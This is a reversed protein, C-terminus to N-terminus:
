VDRIAERIEDVTLFRENADSRYLFGEPLAEGKWGISSWSQHSPKVVYIGRDKVTRRIEEQNLLLEHLKEGGPRLGTVEYQYDRGGIAEAIDVLRVSPIAPVFVEGGRMREIANLVLDVAGDLTLWFRTMREDTLKLPKGNRVCELWIPVV